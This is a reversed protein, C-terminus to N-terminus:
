KIEQKKFKNIPIRARLCEFCIQNRDVEIGLNLSCYNVVQTHLSHLLAVMLEVVDGFSVVSHEKVECPFGVVKM